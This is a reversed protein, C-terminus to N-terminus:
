VWFFRGNRLVKGTDRQQKRFGDSSLEYCEPWQHPMAADAYYNRIDGTISNLDAMNSRVPAVPNLKQSLIFTTYTNFKAIAEQGAPVRFSDQSFRSLLGNVSNTWIRNQRDRYLIFNTNSALGERTSYTKFRYGDYRAIGRDSTIWIEGLHDEIVDYLEDSPLGDETSYIRYSPQQAFLTIASLIAIGNLM